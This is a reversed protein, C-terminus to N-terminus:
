SQLSQLMAPFRRQRLWSRLLFVLCLCHRGVFATFKDATAAKQEWRYPKHIAYGHRTSLDFGPYLVHVRRM